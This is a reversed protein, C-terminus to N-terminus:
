SCTGSRSSKYGHSETPQIHYCFYYAAVDISNRLSKHLARHIGRVGQASISGVALQIIKYKRNSHQLCELGAQPIEASQMGGPAHSCALTIQHARVYVVWSLLSPLPASANMCTKTSPRVHICPYPSRNRWRKRMVAWCTCGGSRDPDVSNQPM